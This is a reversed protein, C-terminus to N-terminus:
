KLINIELESRRLTLDMEFIASYNGHREQFELYHWLKLELSKHRHEYSKCYDVITPKRSVILYNWYFVSLSSWSM